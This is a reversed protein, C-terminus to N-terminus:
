SADVDIDDVDDINIHQVRTVRGDTARDRQENVFQDAADVLGRMAKLFEHAANWLHEMADDGPPTPMDM